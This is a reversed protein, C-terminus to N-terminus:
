LQNGKKDDEIQKLFNSTRGNGPTIETGRIIRGLKSEELAFWGRAVLRRLHELLFLVLLRFTRGNIFQTYTSVTLLRQRLASDARFRAVSFFKVGHDLEYIKFAFLLVLGTLSGFFIYYALM